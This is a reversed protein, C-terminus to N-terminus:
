GAGVEASLDAAVEDWRSPPVARTLLQAVLRALTNDPDHEQAVDVGCWALAGNGSLWASLALVAAPGAVLDRPSRQVADTWLEVYAAASASTVAGWARDRGAPDLLGLLVGALARDSFRGVPLSAAVAEEIANPSLATARRLVRAVGDMEPVPRLREALEDRSASVVHGRLVSEVRFRHGVADFRTGSGAPDGPDFWEHGSVLFTSTVAIGATAFDHGLRDLVTAGWPRDGTYAVLVVSRVAHDTAPDLILDRVERYTDPKDARPLDVRAHFNEAGGCTLMVVSEHPEFGLVVPIAALVDEPRRCTM